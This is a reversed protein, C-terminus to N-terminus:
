PSVLKAAEAAGVPDFKPNLALAERVLKVGEVKDGAAIRIAGAHYLLTADKTGLQTAKDMAERAEPLKGKRYLAWAYADCTYIGPRVTMEGKALQVAEDIDRNKVAFFLALTRHDTRRGDKVAIEYAQEAGKQDGAAARADGLRWATEVLPNQKHAKELLEVATKADGKALAVRASGVLAPPYDNFEKLALKFGADAGDYDGQHWFILAAQVLTWARPEPFSPDRGSEAALRASSAARKTDGHLWILYSARAYSPLSPKLDVMKDAAAVAEEYRGVEMLADSLTGLAVLDEPEKALIEAALDRAEYFKHDNLLTQAILNRALSNGPAFDLVIDACAKSNLYYGPDATERAKRVWARGLLIWTDIHQPLKELKKQHGRIEADVLAPAAPDALALARATALRSDDPAASTAAAASTAQPAASVTASGSGNPSTGSQGCASLLLACTTWFFANKLHM